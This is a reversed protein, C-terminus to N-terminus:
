LFEIGKIYNISVCNKNDWSLYYSHQLYLYFYLMFIDYLNFPIHYNYIFFLKNILIKAYKLM